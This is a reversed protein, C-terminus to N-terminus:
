EGKVARVRSGDELLQVQKKAFCWWLQRAYFTFWLTTEPREYFDRIQRVDSTATSTNGKRKNLWHKTLSKWNGALSEDHLNSTYGLRIVQEEEISSREWKGGRGLKIFRVDTPRNIKSM